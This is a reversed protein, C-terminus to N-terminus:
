RRSGEASAASTGPTRPPRLRAVLVERPHQAPEERLGSLLVELDDQPAGLLPRQRHRARHQAARGVGLGVDRLDGEVKPVDERLLEGPAPAGEVVHLAGLAAAQECGGEGLQEVRQVRERLKRRLAGRPAGVLVVLVLAEAVGDAVGDGVHALHEAGGDAELAGERLQLTHERPEGGRRRLAPPAGLAADPAHPLHDRVAVRGEEARLHHALEHAEERRQRRGALQLRGAYPRDAGVGAPQIAVVLQESRACTDRPSASWFVAAAAECASFCM